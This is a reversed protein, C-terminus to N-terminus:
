FSVCWLLILQKCCRHQCGASSKGSVQPDVLNRFGSLQLPDNVYMLNLHFSTLKRVIPEQWRRAGKVSVTCYTKKECILFWKLKRFELGTSSEMVAFEAEFKFVETHPHAVRMDRPLLHIIPTTWVEPHLGGPGPSFGGWRHISGAEQSWCLVAGEEPELRPRVHASRLCSGNVQRSWRQLSCLCHSWEGLSWSALICGPSADPDSRCFFVFVCLASLLSPQRYEIKKKIEIFGM